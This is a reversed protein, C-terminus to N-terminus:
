DLNLSGQDRGAVWAHIVVPGTVLLAIAAPRGDAAPFTGVLAARRLPQVTVLAGTASSDSTRLASVAAPM